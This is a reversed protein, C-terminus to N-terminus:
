SNLKMRLIEQQSKKLSVLMDSKEEIAQTVSNIEMRLSAMNSTDDHSRLLLSRYTGTLKSIERELSEIQGELDHVPKKPTSKKTSRTLARTTSNLTKSFIRKKSVEPTKVRVTKNSSVEKQLHDIQKQYTENLDKLNRNQIQM